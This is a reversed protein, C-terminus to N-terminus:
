NIEQGCSKKKGITNLTHYGLFLLSLIWWYGTFKGWSPGNIDIFLYHFDRRISECCPKESGGTQRPKALLIGFYTTQCPRTLCRQMNIIIHYLARHRYLLPWCLLDIYHALPFIFWLKAWTTQQLPAFIYRRDCSVLVSSNNSYFKATPQM